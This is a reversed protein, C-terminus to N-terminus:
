SVLSPFAQVAVLRVVSAKEMQMDQGVRNWDGPDVLLELEERNRFQAQELTYKIIDNGIGMVAM